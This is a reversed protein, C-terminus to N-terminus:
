WLPSIKGFGMIGSGAGSGYNWHNSYVSDAAYFTDPSNTCFYKMQAAKMCVNNTYTFGSTNYGGYSSPGYSPTNYSDYFITSNFYNIANIPENECSTFRLGEKKNLCNYQYTQVYQGLLSVEFQTNLQFGLQGGITSKYEYTDHNIYIQEKGGALNYLLDFPTDLEALTDSGIYAFNLTNSDSLQMQYITEPTTLDYSVYNKFMQMFMSGLIVNSSQSHKSDNLFQIYIKCEGTTADDEALAGLPFLVYDTAGQFMFNFTWGAQWLNTYTACPQSLKCMGGVSYDCTLENNITADVKYLLNTVQFWLYYPLGLGVFNTTIDVAQRQNPYGIPQWYGKAPQSDTNLEVKGFGASTLTYTGKDNPYLSVTNRANADFYQAYNGYGIYLNPVGTTSGPATGGAFSQDTVPGTEILYGSMGTFGLQKIMTSDIGLAIEGAGYNAGWNWADDTLRDAAYIDATFPSLDSGDAAELLFDGEIIVGDM